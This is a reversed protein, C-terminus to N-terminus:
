AAHRPFELGSEDLLREIANAKPVGALTVGSMANVFEMGIVRHHTDYDVIRLDDIPRTQGVEAESLLMYLVDVEADYTVPGM